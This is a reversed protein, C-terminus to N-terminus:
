VWGKGYNEIVSAKKMLEKRHQKSQVWVPKDGLNPDLYPQVDGIVNHGYRQRMKNGCCETEKFDAIKM